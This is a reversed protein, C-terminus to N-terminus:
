NGDKKLASLLVFVWGAILLLGGLPTVPGLFSVGLKTITTTSLLYISGSFMFIGLVWLWTIWKQYHLNSLNSIALLAIAHWAQYRVGTNFSELSETSLTAKLSHAGLAGLIIAIAGLGGAWTIITKNNM